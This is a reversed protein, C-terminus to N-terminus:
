GHRSEDDMVDEAATRYCDELSYGRKSALQGLYVMIDGIADKEAAEYSEFKDPDVGNHQAIFVRALEGFEEAIGAIDTWINSMPYQRKQWDFLTSQLDDLNM